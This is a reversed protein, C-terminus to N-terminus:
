KVGRKEFSKAIFNFMSTIDSQKNTDLERESNEGNYVSPTVENVGSLKNGEVHNKFININNIKNQKISEYALKEASWNLDYKAKEVLESDIMNSIEDIARLREREEKVLDMNGKKVNFPVQLNGCDIKNVFVRNDKNEYEVQNKYLVVDVFGMEAADNSNIWTEKSMMQILEEKTLNVKNLYSEIIADKIKELAQTTSELEEKKYNGVLTTTPNHIMLLANSPMYVTDAAMLIITSASAAIGDIYCNIKSKIRKLRNYIGCAAFVSGGQSNVYINLVEKNKHKELEKNFRNESTYQEGLYDREWSDNSEIVGRIYLDVSNDTINTFNWFKDM